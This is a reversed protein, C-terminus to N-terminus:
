KLKEKRTLNFYRHLDVEPLLVCEDEEDAEDAGVSSEDRGIDALGLAVPAGIRSKEEEFISTLDSEKEWWQEEDLELVDGTKGTLAKGDEDRGM